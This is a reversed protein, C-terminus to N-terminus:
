FENCVEYSLVLIALIHDYRTKYGDPYVDGDVKIAEEIQDSHLSFVSVGDLYLFYFGDISSVWMYRDLDFM